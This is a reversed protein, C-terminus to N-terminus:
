SILLLRLQGPVDAPARHICPPVSCGPWAVAIRWLHGIGFSWLKADPNPLYHLHYSRERLYAEFEASEAGGFEALLATRVEAVETCKRAQENRLGESPVGAYTCLWTDTEIPAEDVHFSYVDVPVVAPDKPYTRICNLEPQLGWSRLRALDNLMADAAQKGSAGVALDRIAEADIAVLDSVGQGLAQAVEDFNGALERTWCLANVGCDLPTHLLEDFSSVQRVNPHDVTSFDPFV